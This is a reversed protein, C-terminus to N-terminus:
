ILLNKFWASFILALCFPIWQVTALHLQGLRFFRPPTFAFVIGCVFAGFWGLGLERGLFFAGIGSLACALLVILNMALLPNGGAALVPAALLASGIQHESYALTGSQPYFINADFIALPQRQFAHVDWGLTWLFLRTDPGLDLAESAPHLSLPTTFVGTLVVFVAVIALLRASM